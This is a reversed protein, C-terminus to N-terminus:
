IRDMMSEIRALAGDVEADITQERDCNIRSGFNTFGSRMEEAIIALAARFEWKAITQPRPPLEAKDLPKDSLGVIFKTVLYEIASTRAIM